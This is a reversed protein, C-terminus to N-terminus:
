SVESSGSFSRACSPSVSFRFESKEVEYVRKHDWGHSAVEHGAQAISRVMEPHREAVWGLVFFTGRAAHQELLELLRGVSAEVRSELLDWECPPVKSEFEVFNFYEEVDVTFHHVAM